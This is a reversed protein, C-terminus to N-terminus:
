KLKAWKRLYSHGDQSTLKLFYLGQAFTSIPISFNNMLPKGQALINGQLNVIQWSTFPKVSSTSVALTGDHIYCAIQHNEFKPTSISVPNLVVDPSIFIVGETTSGEQIELTQNASIDYLKDQHGTPWFIILSDVKEYYKLGIIETTSNQGLFGIGCHTYRMQYMSDVYVEIKSGIADRNSKVGELRIKLWNNSTGSNRWLQAQYPLNNAVIIDPYGNQDYDGIAHSTSSVTDGTFGADEPKIFTGDGENLYFQSSRMEAGVVSGSVYLDLFGDNNADFFNAAWTLNYLGVGALAAVEEFRVSDEKLSAGLNHLLMNGTEVNTVYIDQWGDNDYDGITVSMAEMRLATKSEVSIDTFTGDKNNLLLTNRSRKDNATYIDPWGDQNVDFFSSCFPIRGRDAVGAIDTTEIFTGNGNNKFLRNENTGPVLPFKRESVYLDLWGDRDYDAWAAGYARHKNIPLGASETIDVFNLDGKNEYLRNAEGFTAVFFDKDGDNDFDVWLVQKAEDRHDVLPYLAQFEGGTNRFFSIPAYKETAITIDDLGDGDFDCFSVGGAVFGSLIAHDVGVIQALEIFRVNQSYLNPFYSFFLLLHIILIDRM